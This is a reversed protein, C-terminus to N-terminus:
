LILCMESNNYACLMVHKKLLKDLMAEARLSDPVHTPNGLRMHLMKSQQKTGLDELARSWAQKMILKQRDISKQILNENTEGIRVEDKLHMSEFHPYFQIRYKAVWYTYHDSLDGKKVQLNSDYSFRETSFCSKTEDNPDLCRKYMQRFYKFMPNPCESNSNCHLLVCFLSLAHQTKSVHRHLRQCGLGGFKNFLGRIIM